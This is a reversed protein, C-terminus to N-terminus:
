MDQLTTHTSNPQTICNCNLNYKTFHLNNEIKGKISFWNQDLLKNEQSQIVGNYVYQTHTHRSFISCMFSLFHLSVLCHSYYPSFVNAVKNSASSLSNIHHYFYLFITQCCWRSLFDSIVSFTVFGTERLKKYADADGPNKTHFLYKQIVNRLSRLLFCHEYRLSVHCMAM